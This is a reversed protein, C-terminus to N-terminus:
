KLQAPTAGALEIANFLFPFTGYPQARFTIEPGFLYVEGKGVRAEVAAVTGNLYSQGWAWGSRLPEANPFWAIPRVGKLASDPLLHFVPSNDYFVDLKEPLGYAIPLTQDVSAQLISGPVYFKDTALRRQAGDPGAETLGNTLPLGLFNGFGTSSGIALVTGGEEVFRRLQPETTAPTISGVQNKFEDPVNANAGGRGGRGGRGANDGAAADSGGATRGGGAARGGVAADGGGGGRGGRGGGEQGPIAGGPFILVDYKSKLDGADLTPAYVLEYPTPFAQELLWRIQGSDQNGGYRDWLGVRVPRLKLADGQPKVSTADFSLGVETALKALTAGTSAKAPIYITGVPYTKGNATLEKQLWYVEEGSALLRTTGVFSDKVQHSLLYGATGQSQTVKGAPLKVLGDIRQFPGDFGDLIRDFQVGMQFALTYGTIDYPPRPPGGPYQLDNPHDQPEFMDRLHPRFAQAAKVVYSGAPYTKGGVQFDATARDIVIGSKALANVFKTATLFDPQDSPIIYGRPDRAEPTHLQDWYKVPVGNQFYGALRDGSTDGGAAGAAGASRAATAIGQDKAYAAELAAVRKPTLTWYDESGREISNKGARYIRFLFDERFKSAIDLIARDTTLLYDISQRQHWEQRPGIPLPQNGDPLLKSPVLPISEPTPNGIIESLLGIQNHFGTTTRDGGNFWTSYPAGTRLVAGPKGEALFREHVAASVLDIGIPVLPDQNYNFPDRFPSFFLVSGAPGSQHQNYMIQPIWEIYMQRSVAETEPQNNMYSDRNDDHGVYKQYLRPISLNRQKPDAEKMYWNSVLEMGDPNIPVLLLIDDNLIRLTEPDNKSVFDYAEIFLAQANICETAHLGGDIWVVAKGEAALAHAQDDTLNEARGLRQSIEKYRALNKLNAPSTIIAITIPRGEATKGIDVLKIRDSEKALKNWYELLQTYNALFYDEGVAHGGVEPPTITTQARASLSATLVLATLFAGRKLAKMNM